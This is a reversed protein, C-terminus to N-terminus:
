DPLPIYEDDDIVKGFTQARWDAKAQKILAESSAVFNWWLKRPGVNEGGILLVHSDVEASLKLNSGNRIAAMTGAAVVTPGVRTSGSIVYIAREMGTDPLTLQAGADLRCDVYLTPSHQSVPSKQGLCEGVVVTLSAGDRHILPLEGAPIHVFDPACRELEKPLATWSQIGHLRSERNLDSGARESHVIGRGATMLNVAGPKIAQTYGLSDRHMIEGEFLYTLTALGIHPHPRVQIGEGASLEAPGMHDFFVFPGVSRCRPAPLLRRVSFAGIDKEVPSITLAVEGDHDDCRADEADFVSM